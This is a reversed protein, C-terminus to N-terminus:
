VNNNIDGDRNFPIRDDSVFQQYPDRNHVLGVRGRGRFFPRGRGSGRWPRRQASQGQQQIATIQAATQLNAIASPPFSTTNKQLQRFLKATVDGFNGQVLSNAYEAQLYRQQATAVVAIQQFISNQEDNVPCQAILKLITESYKALNAIINLKQHDERKTGSKEVVLRLDNPLNVRKVIEKIHLFEGNIDETSVPSGLAGNPQVSQVEVGSDTIPVQITETDTHPVSDPDEGRESVQQAQANSRTNELSNVRLNLGNLQNIIVDLKSNVDEIESMVQKHPLLAVYLSPFNTNKVFKLLM